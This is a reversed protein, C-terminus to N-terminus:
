RASLLLAQTDRLREDRVAPVAGVRDGHGAPQVRKAGRELPVEWVCRPEDVPKAELVAVFEHVDDETGARASARDCAVPDPDPVEEDAQQRGV